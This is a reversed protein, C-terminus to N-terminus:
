RRRIPHPAAIYRHWRSIGSALGIVRNVSRDTM